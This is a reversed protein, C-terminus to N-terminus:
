IFASRLSNNLTCAILLNSNRFPCLPHCILIRDFNEDIVLFTILSLSTFNGVNYKYKLQGSIITYLLILEAFGLIKTLEEM